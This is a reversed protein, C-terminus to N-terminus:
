EHQTSEKGLYTKLFQTMIHFQEPTLGSFDFSHKGGPVTLLEASYGKERLKEFFSRSQSINVTSDADGHILLIPCPEKDLHEMPSALRWEEQSEAFPKPMLLNGGWALIDPVGYLSVACSISCSTDADKRYRNLAPDEAATATLLALHGGASSGIVGIKGPDVGYSDANRRLYSVADMVNAACQPWASELRKGQYPGDEYVAMHYNASFVAYGLGCLTEAMNQEREDGKDGTTWGGGHLLLCAPRCKKADEPLWADMKPGEREGAELYPIERIVTIKGTANTTEM